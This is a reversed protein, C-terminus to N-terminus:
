EFGRGAGAAMMVASFAILLREVGSTPHFLRFLIL